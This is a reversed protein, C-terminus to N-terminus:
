RGVFRRLQELGAVLDARGFGLRVHEPMEFLHGPVLSTNSAHLLEQCFDAATGPGIYRPFAVSSGDPELWQFRDPIAAFTSRASELNSGVLRRARAILAQHAQVAVLALLESPASHCITTYDKLHAIKALMPQDQGVLWGIRLGPLGFSKSVGFLSLGKEYRDCLAPLRTGPLHELHWYMEDSFIPIGYRRASEIVQQQFEASPIYGTPNHPFNVVILRTRQDLHDHLFDLDLQWREGAPHLPWRIVQASIAGAIEYLSQYAPFTVILRDGPELLANMLLFIAEEPVAVLVNPPGINEYLNSIAERLLPHGQTETYGLWLRDWLDRVQPDAMALLEPLTMSECDSAGLLYRVEFEHRAFYRELKFPPIRM